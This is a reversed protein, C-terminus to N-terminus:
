GSASLTSSMADAVRNGKHKKEAANAAKNQLSLYQQFFRDKQTQSIQVSM